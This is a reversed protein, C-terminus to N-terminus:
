INERAQQPNCTATVSEDNINIACSDNWSMYARSLDHAPSFLGDLDTRHLRTKQVTNKHVFSSLCKSKETFSVFLNTNASIVLSWRGLPRWAVCDRKYSTVNNVFTTPLAWETTTENRRMSEKTFLPSGSTSSDATNKYIVILWSSNRGQQGLWAYNLYPFIFCSM